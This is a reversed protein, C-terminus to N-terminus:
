PILTINQGRQEARVGLVGTLMDLLQPLPQKVFRASLRRDLLAPNATLSVGYWRGIVPLAERLPTDAFHLEGELWSLTLSADHTVTVHGNAALRGRDGAVLRQRQLVQTTRAATSDALAVEGEEVAVDVGGLEPWARVVFRTGIDEAVANGIHVRFPVRDDHRVDFFAEGTVHVDRSTSGFRRPWSARSGAAVTLTSGDPLTVSVRQGLPAEVTHMGTRAYQWYGGVGLVLVAAAAWQWMRGTRRSPAQVAAPALKAQVDRWALHARLTGYRTEASEAQAAFMPPLSTLLAANAPSAACWADVVRQQELTANGTLVADIATVLADSFPPTPTTM